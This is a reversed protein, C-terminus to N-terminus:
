KAPRLRRQDGASIAASGYRDHLPRSAREVHHVPVGGLCLDCMGAEPEFVGGDCLRVGAAGVVTGSPFSASGSGWYRRTMGSLHLGGIVVVAFPALHKEPLSEDISPPLLFGTDRHIAHFNSM